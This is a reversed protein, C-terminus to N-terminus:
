IPLDLVIPKDFREAAYIAVQESNLARASTFIVTGSPPLGDDM